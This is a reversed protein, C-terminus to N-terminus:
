PAARRHRAAVRGNGFVLLDDEADADIDAVDDDVAVVNEAVADVDGGPQLRQALGAADADRARGVLLDPVLQRQGEGIEALLRHLVDRAGDADVPQRRFVDQRQRVARGESRRLRRPRHGGVLLVDVEALGAVAHLESVGPGSLPRRDDLGAVPHGVEFKIQLARDPSM